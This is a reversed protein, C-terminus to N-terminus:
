GAALTVFNDPAFQSDHEVQRGPQGMDAASDHPGLQEWRFFSLFTVQNTHANRLHIILIPDVHDSVDDFKPLPSSGSGRCTWLM